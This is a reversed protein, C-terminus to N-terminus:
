LRHCDPPARLDGGTEARVDFLDSVECDVCSEQQKVLCTILRMCM